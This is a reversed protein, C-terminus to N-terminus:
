NFNLCLNNEDLYKKLNNFQDVSTEHSILLKERVRQTSKLFGDQTQWEEIEFFSDQIIDAFQQLNQQDDFNGEQPKGCNPCFKGTVDFQPGCFKCASM